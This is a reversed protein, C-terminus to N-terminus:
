DTLVPGSSRDCVVVGSVSAVSKVAMDILPLPLTDEWCVVHELRKALVTEKAHVLGGAVTAKAKIVCVGECNCLLKPMDLHTYTHTDSEM